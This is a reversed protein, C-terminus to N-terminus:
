NKDLHHEQVGRVLLNLGLNRLQNRDDTNKQLSREFEFLKGQGKKDIRHKTKTVKAALM